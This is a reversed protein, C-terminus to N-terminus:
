SNPGGAFGARNLVDADVIHSIQDADKGILKPAISPGLGLFASRIFTAFNRANSEVEERSVLRGEKQSVELQLKRARASEALAKANALTVIADSSAGEARGALRNGASMAPDKLANITEIAKDRM